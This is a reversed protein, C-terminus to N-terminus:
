VYKEKSKRIIGRDIDRFNEAKLTEFIGQVASAEDVHLETIIEYGNRIFIALFVGLIINVILAVIFPYYIWM